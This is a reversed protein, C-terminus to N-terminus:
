FLVFYALACSMSALRICLVMGSVERIHQLFSLDMEDRIWTLELNGYVFTCNLYRDRYESYVLDLNSPINLGGRTGICVKEDIQLASIRISSFTLSLIVIYNCDQGFM